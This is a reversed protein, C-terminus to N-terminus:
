LMLLNDCDDSWGGWNVLSSISVWPYSTVEELDHCNPSSYRVWKLVERASMLSLYSQGSWPCPIFTLHILPWSPLTWEHSSITLEVHILVCALLHL